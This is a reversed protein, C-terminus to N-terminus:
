TKFVSLTFMKLALPFCQMKLLPDPNVKIVM